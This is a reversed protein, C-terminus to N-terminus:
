RDARTTDIARIWLDTGLNTHEVATTSDSDQGGMGVEGSSV